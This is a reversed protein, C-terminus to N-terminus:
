EKIKKIREGVIKLKKEDIAKLVERHLKQREAHLNQLEAAVAEYDALLRRLAPTVNPSAM